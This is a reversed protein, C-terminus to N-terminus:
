ATKCEVRLTDQRAAAPLDALAVEQASGRLAVTAKRFVRAQTSYVLVKSVSSAVQVRSSQQQAWAPTGVLIAMTAIWPHYRGM